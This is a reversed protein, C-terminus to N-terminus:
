LIFFRCKIKFLHGGVCIQGCCWSGIFISAVSYCHPELRTEWLANYCMEGFCAAKCVEYNNSDRMQVRALPSSLRTISVIRIIWMIRMIVCEWSLLCNEYLERMARTIRTVRVDVSEGFLLCDECDVCDKHNECECEGRVLCLEWLGWLGWLEWMWVRELCSAIGVIRCLLSLGAAMRPQDQTCGLAM